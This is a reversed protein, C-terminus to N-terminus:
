SQLHNLVEGGRPLPRFCRGAESSSVEPHADYCLGGRPSEYVRDILLARLTAGPNNMWIGLLLIRLLECARGGRGSGIGIPVPYPWM